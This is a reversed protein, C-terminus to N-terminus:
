GKESKEKEAQSKKQECGFFPNTCKFCHRFSLGDVCLCGVGLLLAPLVWPSGLGGLVFLLGSSSSFSFSFSLLGPVRRLSRARARSGVDKERTEEDGDDPRAVRVRQLAGEAEVVVVGDHLVGIHEGLRAEELEPALVEPARGDPVLHRVLTVARQADRAELEIADDSLM